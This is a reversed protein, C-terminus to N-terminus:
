RARRNDRPAHRDPRQDGDGRSMLDAFVVVNGTYQGSEEDFSGGCTLLHLSPRGQSRYVRHSPFDDRDYFIIRKVEFTSRPGDKEWMSIRDGRQLNSLGYFVAPGTLSDVHGVVVAAGPEGPAPGGNWWGVDDYNDPVQLKTGIVALEVLAQDVGLAPIVIREPEPQAAPPAVAPPESARTTAPPKIAKVAREPPRRDREHRKTSDDQVQPAAGRHAGEAGFVSSGSSM